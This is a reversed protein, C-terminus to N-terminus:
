AALSEPSGKVNSTIKGLEVEFNAFDGKEQADRAGIIAKSIESRIDNAKALILNGRREKDDQEAISDYEAKMQRVKLVDESFKNVLFAEYSEVTVGKAALEADIENGLNRFEVQKEKEHAVVHADHLNNNATATNAKNEAKEKGIEDGKKYDVGEMARFIRETSM